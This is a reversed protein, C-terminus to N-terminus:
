FAAIWFFTENQEANSIFYSKYYKLLFSFREVTEKEENYIFLLLCHFWRQNMIVTKEDDTISNVLYQKIEVSNSQLSGEQTLIMRRGVKNKNNMILM